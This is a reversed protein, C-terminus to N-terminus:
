GNRRHLVADVASQKLKAYPISVDHIRNALENRGISALGEVVGEIDDSSRNQSLKSKGEVQTIVVEIGVLARVMGALSKSTVSDLDYSPDHRKSLRRVQNEIWEPETHTVLRGHAQVVEYDWTPMASVGARFSPYWSPRVYVDEGRIVVLAPHATHAWQTNPRGLHGQLAGLDGVTPDYLLPVPTLVPSLTEPDVTILDALQVQELVMRAQSAPMQFHRPVYM